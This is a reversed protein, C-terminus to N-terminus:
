AHHGKPFRAFTHQRAPMTNSKELCSLMHKRGNLGITDVRARIMRKIHRVERRMNVGDM